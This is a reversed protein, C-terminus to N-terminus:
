GQIYFHTPPQTKKTEREGREGSEGSEGEGAQKLLRRTTLSRKIANAITNANYWFVEQYSDREEDEGLADSYLNGGVMMVVGKEYAARKLTYIELPSVSSETFMTSVNKEIIQELLLVMDRGGVSSQNNIGKPSLFTLGYRRAFYSFADHSTLVVRQQEGISAFLKATQEDILRLKQHLANKRIRFYERREPLLDSLCVYVREVVEAWLSPDFWIHPDVQGDNLILKERSITASLDFTPKMNQQDLKAFVEGMKAELHLGHYFIADAKLILRLDGEKAVYSHPDRGAGMLSSVELYKGGVQRVVDAAITTSALVKLRDKKLGLLGNKEKGQTSPMSENRGSFTSQAAIGLDPHDDSLMYRIVNAQQGIAKMGESNFISAQNVSHMAHGDPRPINAADIQSREITDTGDATDTRDALDKHLFYKGEKLVNAQQGTAKVGEMGFVSAQSVSHMAHGDPRPINAADIQSHGATDTGDATGTRDALDKHLFYKGEKLVNAQQGTAKMGEMGFVSAQSVSHMAHGDPRPINAADIQSHGITGTRDALNKHLFYEEGKKGGEKEGEKGGKKPLLTTGDNAELPNQGKPSVDVPNSLPSSFNENFQFFAQWVRDGLGEGGESISQHVTPNMAVVWLVISVFLALQLSIYRVINWGQNRITEM